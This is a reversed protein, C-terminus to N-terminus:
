HHRGVLGLDRTSAIACLLKIRTGVIDNPNPEGVSYFKIGSFQRYNLWTFLDTDEVTWKEQKRGKYGCARVSAVDEAISALGNLYVAVVQSRTRDGNSIGRKVGLVARETAAVIAPVCPDSRSPWSISIKNLLKSTADQLNPYAEWLSLLDDRLGRDKLASLLAPLGEMVIGVEMLAEDQDDGEVVDKYPFALISTVKATM